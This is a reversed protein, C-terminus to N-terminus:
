TILTHPQAPSGLATITVAPAPQVRGAQSDRAVQSANAAACEWVGLHVIATVGVALAFAVLKRASILSNSM